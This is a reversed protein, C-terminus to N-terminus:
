ERGVRPASRGPTAARRRRPLSQSERAARGPASGALTRPRPGREWEAWARGVAAVAQPPAEREALLDLVGQGTEPVSPLRYSVLLRALEGQRVLPFGQM